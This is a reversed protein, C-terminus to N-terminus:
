YLTVFNDLLKMGFKHSKEPHFQVGIVNDKEVGATFKYGYLGSTLNDSEEDCVIHYTHVFYFRPEDFMETFLKSDKDISVDCWGMNPIKLTSDMKEERFRITQADIWGLGPEVGEESGKTLLQAGLCIGLVPTKEELVKQNLVEILGSAQLQRMGYDFHGVGPLILKDAKRIVEPDASIEVDLHGAKKLMNKISRLNGVGYDIIVLM